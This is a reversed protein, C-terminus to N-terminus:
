KHRAFFDAFYKTADVNTAHNPDFMDLTKTRCGSWQHKLNEVLCYEVKGHCLENCTTSETPNNTKTIVSSGCIAEAVDEISANVSKWEANTVPAFPLGILEEDQPKGTVNVVPDALGHFHVLPTENSISCSSFDAQWAGLLGSHVGAAAIWPKGNERNGMECLLKYVMFGGNSMGTVYVKNEDVNFHKVMYDIMVKTFAIDDQGQSCCGAGNWNTLKESYIWDGQPYMAIWGRKKAERDFQTLKQMTESDSMVGHYALVLPRKAHGKNAPEFVRFTREIFRRREQPFGTQPDNDDEVTVTIVHTNNRKPIPLKGSRLFNHGGSPLADTFIQGGSHHLADFLYTISLVTPLFM